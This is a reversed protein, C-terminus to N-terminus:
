DSIRRFELRHRIGSDDTINLVLADGIFSYPIQTEGNLLLCDTDPFSGEDRFSKYSFSVTESVGDAYTTRTGNGNGDFSWVSFVTLPEQQYRDATQYVFSTEPVWAGKLPDAKACGILLLLVAALLFVILCKRKM